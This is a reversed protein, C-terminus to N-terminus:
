NVRAAVEHETHRRNRTTERVEWFQKILNRAPANRSIPMSGLIETFGVSAFSTETVQYPGDSEFYSPSIQLIECRGLIFFYRFYEVTGSGSVVMLYVVLHLMSGGGCALLLYTRASQFARKENYSM